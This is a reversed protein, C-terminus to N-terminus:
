GGLPRRDGGLMWGAAIAALLLLVLLLPFGRSTKGGDRTQLKSRQVHAEFRTLWAPLDKVDVPHERLYSRSHERCRACPLVQPLLEFFARYAEQSEEDCAEASSRLFAWAPPGWVSPHVNRRTM